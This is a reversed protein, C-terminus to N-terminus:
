PNAALCPCFALAQDSLRPKGAPSADDPLDPGRYLVLPPPLILERGGNKVASVLVLRAPRTPHSLVPLVTKPELKNGALAAFLGTLRPAPYVLSLVGRNALFFAAADLFDSLTGSSESKAQRRGAHPSHRGAGLPRYPPNCLVHDFSEPRPCFADPSPLAAARLRTERVDLVHASFAPSLGLRVANERAARVMDPSIDLGTVTVGPAADRLLLWLGAPGCGCGLDLVRAQPRPSAFAGLLLADLSFRWGTEPQTLGRPFIGRATRIADTM